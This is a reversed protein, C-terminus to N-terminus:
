IYDHISIVVVVVDIIFIVAVPITRLTKLAKTSLAKSAEPTATAAWSGHKTLTLSKLHADHKAAYM